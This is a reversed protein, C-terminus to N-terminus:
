FAFTMTMDSKLSVREHATSFAFFCRTESVEEVPKGMFKGRKWWTITASPRSGVSRCEVIAPRSISFPEVPDVISVNLPLVAVFINLIM